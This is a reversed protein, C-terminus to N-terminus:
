GDPPSVDGPSVERRLLAGALVAGTAFLGACCALAVRSADNVAAPHEYDTGSLGAVLPLAAVALMGGARAVANNVGSAVGAFRTPAAALVSATLPAVFLTVGLGLVVVAPLVDRWYVAEPGIRRMLLVGAAALLGGVALPIRPGIRKGLGGAWSSGALILLPMPASAAGAAFASFGAVIQLQLVLFFFTGGLAAYTLPTAFVFMTTFLLDWSVVSDLHGTSARTALIGLAIGFIKKV